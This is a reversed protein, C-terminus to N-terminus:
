RRARRKAVEPSDIQALLESIAVDGDVTAGSAVQRRAVTVKKRVGQWFLDTAKEQVQLARLSDRIVESASEYRGSKVKARVYKNLTGTLSVNLTSQRAM